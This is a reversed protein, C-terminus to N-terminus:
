GSRDTCVLSVNQRWIEGEHEFERAPFITNLIKKVDESTDNKKDMKVPAQVKLYNKLTFGDAVRVPPLFRVLSFAEM